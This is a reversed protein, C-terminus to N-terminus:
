MSIGSPLNVMFPRDDKKVKLYAEGTITVNRTKGTDMAPFSITSASNLWVNSGDALELQYFGGKPIILKNYPSKKRSSFHTEKKFVLKHDEIYVGFDKSITENEQARDVIHKIGDALTLVINSTDATIEEPSENENLFATSQQKASHSLILIVCVVLGVVLAALWIAANFNIRRPQIEPEVDTGKKPEEIKIADIRAWLEQRSEELDVLHYEIFEAAVWEKDDDFRHYFEMNKQSANLWEELEKKESETAKGQWDNFILQAIHEFKETM